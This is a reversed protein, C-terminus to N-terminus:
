RNFIKKTRSKLFSVIKVKENAEIGLFWVAVGTSIVSIVCIALLRLFESDITIQYRCILPIPTAALTVVFCQKYLSYIDKYSYNAIRVVLVPLIVMSIIINAALLVITTTTPPFANRFLIYVLPFCILMITPIVISYEKIKAIVDLAIYLSQDFLAFLSTIIIIRLFFVSYSPVQGLWIHLVESACLFLPLGLLFLLYYSFRTTKMLLNRSSDHNGAAYQKVIQPVSATQFNQVFASIADKLTTALALSTVIAPNFFMNILVIMGKSNLAGSIKSILNWSTYGTVRKFINKDFLFRYKTEPFHWICFIRYFLTMALSELALLLAYFVLRDIPSILLLYVIVLKASADIISTYAYIDMREHGKIAAGYPTQTLTFFATAVSIHYVKLAADMRDPPVNLKNYVFWLGITEALLILILALIIHTSLLTSFTDQLRKENGTGMEFMLFRSTGRSLTDNIFVIMGLVSGVVNYLGYDTVGLTQLVVRSTYVSVCMVILMRVYLFLTNKAIRKNNSLSDM